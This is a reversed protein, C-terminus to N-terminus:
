YEMFFKLCLRWNSTTNKKIADMAVFKHSGGLALVGVGGAHNFTKTYSASTSWFMDYMVPVSPNDRGMLVNRLDEGSNATDSNIDAQTPFLYVYYSINCTSSSPNWNTSDSPCRFMREATPAIKDRVDQAQGAWDTNHCTVENNGLYGGNYLLVPSNGVFGDSNIKRNYPMPMFSKNDNAYMNNALGVQKMKSTCSAVRARERAASLAPLLMAALIAIIAIVVLLEILTFSKKM